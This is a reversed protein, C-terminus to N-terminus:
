GNSRGGKRTLVGYAVLAVLAIAGVWFAGRIVKPVAKIAKELNEPLNALGKAVDKATGPIDMLYGTIHNIAFSLVTLIGIGALLGKFLGSRWIAALARVAVTIAPNQAAVMSNRVQELSTGEAKYDLVIHQGGESIQGPGILEGGGVNYVGTRVLTLGVPTLTQFADRVRVGTPNKLPKKMAVDLRLVRNATLNGKLTLKGMAEVSDVRFIRWAKATSWSPMDIPTGPASSDIIAHLRASTM